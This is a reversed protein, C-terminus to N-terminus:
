LKRTNGHALAAETPENLKRHPRLLLWVAAATVLVAGLHVLFM